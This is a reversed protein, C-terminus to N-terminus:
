FMCLQLLLPHTGVVVYDLLLSSFLAVLWFFLVRSM